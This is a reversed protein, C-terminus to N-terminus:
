RQFTQASKLESQFITNQRLVLFLFDYKGEELTLHCDKDRSTYGKPKIASIELNINIPNSGCITERGGEEATSTTSRGAGMFDPYPSIVGVPPPDSGKYNSMHM